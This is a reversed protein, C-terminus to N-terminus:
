YRFNVKYWDTKFDWLSLFFFVYHLYLPLKIKNLQAMLQLQYRGGKELEHIPIVKLSVVESMLRKAKDFDKVRMIEDNNESLRVEYTRKLRDYKISHGLEISKIKRDWWFDRREYLDVFFTFTTDLGSEIARNMDATFCNNVTFYVLLNDRNNTVVIDSLYAQEAMVPMVVLHIVILTVAALFGIKAKDM